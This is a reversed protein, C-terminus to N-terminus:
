KIYLGSATQENKLEELIETLEKKTVNNHEIGNVNINPGVSCKGECRSGVLEITANLNNDKIYSEIFELNEANGRAFCSSGMCIIIKNKM